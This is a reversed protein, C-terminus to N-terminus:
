IRRLIISIAEFPIRGQIILRCTHNNTTFVEETLEQEKAELIEHNHILFVKENHQFLNM